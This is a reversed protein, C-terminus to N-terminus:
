AASWVTHLGRRRPRLGAGVAAIVLLTRFM